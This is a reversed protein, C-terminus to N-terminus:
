HGLGFQRRGGLSRGMSLYFADHGGDAHGYALFLPGFFTDVGFALTGAYRLDGLAIDRSTRWANGAELWGGLYIGRGTLGSLKGSRRYYGLRAVGYVQGTLQGDKFGSLSFLGGVSFQDYFPLDSGLNSGGELGMFVQHRRRGLIQLLGGQVRDYSVDSGLSHRAMYADLLARRGRHPFNPDDLRDIVVRGAYAATSVSSIPLSLDGINSRARLRGRIVGLRAEGYRGLQAGLALSGAMGRTQFQAIRVDGDFVDAFASVYDMSPVVFFVGSFDLPQYFETSIRRTQGIEVDTRWEAGLPDLRTATLRSIVTFDTNGEFDNRVNLGFRLYNPGWSKERARIVLKTGGGERDLVYDVREFDGLEYIRALDRKLVELDLITGPRTRIRNEIIRPDVRGAGEVAIADVRPPGAVQSRLRALREKFENEPLAFRALSAALARAAQEGAELIRAAEFYDGSSTSGLDPVILLDANKIQDEVNERTLMGTVQSTIDPLSRLKEPPLLPTSVDVAIVIDAGMARVVDVPLNRVLGGDALLRGDIEIPAVAGPISMSARLADALNGRDLVVMEGSGLDTAVAKFPIPLGDFERVGAAHLTMSELAFGIKQGAVLGRPLLLRGDKVGMELKILDSTDDEKRRYALDQRPPRDNFLDSWDVAMLATRIQAPSLGSAYLGGVISGMSTGAIFDIPIRREELVELVGVHAIGRAGGGSLALGIRPRAPPAPSGTGELAPTETRPPAPEQADGALAIGCVLLTGGAFLTGRPATLGPALGARYPM